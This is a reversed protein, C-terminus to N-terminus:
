LHGLRLPRHHSFSDRDSHPCDAELPLVHTASRCSHSLNGHYPGHNAFSYIYLCVYMYMCSAYYPAAPGALSVAALRLAWLKSADAFM